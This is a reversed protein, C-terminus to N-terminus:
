QLELILGLGSPELKCSIALQTRSEYTLHEPSSVKDKYKAEKGKGWTALRSNYNAGTTVQSGM